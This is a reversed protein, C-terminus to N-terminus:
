HRVKIMPPFGDKGLGVGVPIYRPATTCYEIMKMFTANNVFKDWHCEMFKKTLVIVAIKCRCCVDISINISTQQRKGELTGTTNCVGVEQISSRSFKAAVAGDGVGELASLRSLARNMLM